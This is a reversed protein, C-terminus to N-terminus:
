PLWGSQVAANIRGDERLFHIRRVGIVDFEAAEGRSKMDAPDKRPGSTIMGIPFWRHLGNRTGHMLVPGGSCGSLNLGLPPLPLGGFSQDRAPDYTLMINRESYDEIASLAGYASFLASRDAFTVLMEQPFGAWSVARMPTPEPPPWQQCCDLAIGGTKALNEESLGFTAIDLDVDSDIIAEHLAFPTLRLQCVFNLM